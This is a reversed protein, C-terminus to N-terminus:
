PRLPRAHGDARDVVSPLPPVILSSVAGLVAAPLPPLMPLPPPVGGALLPAQSGSSLSGSSQAAIGRPKVLAESKVCNPVVSFPPSISAPKM